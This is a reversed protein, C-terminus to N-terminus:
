YCDNRQNVLTKSTRGMVLTVVPGSFVPPTQHCSCCCTVSIRRVQEEPVEENKNEVTSAFPVPLVSTVEQPCERRSWSDLRPRGSSSCSIFVYSQCTPPTPSQPYFAWLSGPNIFRESLFANLNPSFVTFPATFLSKIFKGWLKNNWKSYM